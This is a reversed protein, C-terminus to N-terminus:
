PRCLAKSGTFCDSGFVPTDRNTCESLYVSNFVLRGTNGDSARGVERGGGCAGSCFPATGSWYCEGATAASVPSGTSCAIGLIPAMLLAFSVAIRKWIAM